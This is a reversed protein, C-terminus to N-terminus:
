GCGGIESFNGNYVWKREGGWYRKIKSGISCADPSIIIIRRAKWGPQRLFHTLLLWLFGDEPRLGCGVVILKQSKEVAKFADIMLYAIEVTPIKVFSPAIIYPRANDRNFSARPISRPGLFSHAGSKPFVHQNFEYSLSVSEPKDFYNQLTFHESGHIKLIQINYANINDEGVLVNSIGGYGHNPNWVEFYDLLGELFTDYNLNLIVDNKSFVSRAFQELWTIGNLIDPTFRFQQFYEAIEKNISNRLDQKYHGQQTDIDLKTLLLEIDKTGYKESLSKLPSSPERDLLADVLQGNLPANSFVAKTFGAGFIYFNNNM